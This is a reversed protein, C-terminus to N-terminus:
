HVNEATRIVLEPLTRLGTSQAGQFLPETLPGAAQRKKRKPAKIGNLSTVIM